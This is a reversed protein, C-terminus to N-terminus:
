CTAGRQSVLLSRFVRRGAIYLFTATAVYKGCEAWAAGMVGM